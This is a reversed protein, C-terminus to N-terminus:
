STTSASLTSAMTTSATGAAVRPTKATANSIPKELAEDVIDHEGPVYHVHLRTGGIIQNANDFQAPKALHTIDGTHLLFAPKAPLARMRGIAEKLTDIAHPNAAQRLRRPQRQFRSFPSARRLPRRADDLLSLSKPVGAAVTWLVGTGAWIMCELAHRRSVGDDDHKHDSM